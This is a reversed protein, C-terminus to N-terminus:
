PLKAASRGAPATVRLGPIQISPSRKSARIKADDANAAGLRQDTADSEVFGSGGQTSAVGTRSQKEVVVSRKEGRGVSGVGRLLGRAVQFDLAHQEIVQRREAEVAHDQLAAACHAVHAGVQIAAPVRPRTIGVDNRKRVELLLPLADFAVEPEQDLAAGLRVSQGERGIVTEIGEKSQM